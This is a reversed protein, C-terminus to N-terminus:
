ATTIIKQTRFLSKKVEPETVLSSPYLKIKPSPFFYIATYTDNPLVTVPFNDIVFRQQLAFTNKNKRAENVFFNALYQQLRITDYSHNITYTSRWEFANKEPHYQTAYIPMTPSEYSSVYKVGKTDFSHATPTLTTNLIPTNIFTDYHFMYNHVFVSLNANTMKLRLDDPLGAYLRGAYNPNFYNNKNVGHCGQCDGTLIKFTRAVLGAIAQFGMCTGWLPYYNGHTNQDIVYTVIFNLANGFPTLKDKDDALESGGGTFLVGNLQDLLNKIENYPLDYPIPVVQAGAQELYKVYSAYFYSFKDGPYQSYDSPISVIGIIPTNLNDAHAFLALLFFSLAIYLSKM